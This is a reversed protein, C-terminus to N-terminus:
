DNLLFNIFLKAKIVKLVYYYIISVNNSKPQIFSTFQSESIEENQVFM